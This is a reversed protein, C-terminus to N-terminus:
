IKSFKVIDEISDAVYDIKDWADTGVIIKKGNKFEITTEYKGDSKSNTSINEYKVGLNELIDGYFESFSLLEMDDDSGFYMFDDQDVNELYKEIMEVTERTKFVKEQGSKPYLLEYIKDSFKNELDDFVDEYTLHTTNQEVEDYVQYVEENNTEVEKVLEVLEKLRDIILNYKSIRVRKENEGM